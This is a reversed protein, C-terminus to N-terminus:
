EDNEGEQMIDDATEQEENHKILILEPDAGLYALTRRYESFASVERKPPLNEPEPAEEEAPPTFPMVPVYAEPEVTKQEPSQELINPYYICEKPEKGDHRVIVKNWKSFIHAIVSAHKDLRLRDYSYVHITDLFLVNDEIFTNVDLLSCYVVFDADHAISLLEQKLAPDYSPPQKPAEPKPLPAPSSEQAKLIVAPISVTAHPQPTQVEEELSLMFMGLLIDNRVRQKARTLSRLVKSLLLHLAETTWHPVEDLLFRKEPESLGLSDAISKWKSVLWLNRVLSFMEEFVREGSAGADFMAKLSTYADDSGTRLTKLWREFAPRSGAGLVSEVSALTVDGSAIVQELLSLGDRLAGDAQRALEWLAEGDANVGETSCVYSLRAQIDEPSISHFPIHQCRSRITVPVKHPETTALIFVAHEPPEELTKLLANFAGQSLMHVEDIIYIKYRSSFPALAINERLGRINDVGNNSAGDIEIVDLSDGSTIAECNACHGCPEYGKPNLCNLAKAFIRAISTKGCGRSGSFLYAHGVRHKTIANTLVDIAARQGVVSAFDQPRYKRYLSVSLFVINRGQIILSEPIQKVKGSVYCKKM